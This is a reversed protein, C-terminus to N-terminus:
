LSSKMFNFRLIKLLICLYIRRWVAIGCRNQMLCEVYNPVDEADLHIFEYTITLM